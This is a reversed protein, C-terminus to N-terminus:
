ELVLFDFIMLPFSVVFVSVDILIKLAKKLSSDFTTVFFINKESVKKSIDRFRKSLHFYHVVHLVVAFSALAYFIRYYFEQSLFSFYMLFAACCLELGLWVIWKLNVKEYKM